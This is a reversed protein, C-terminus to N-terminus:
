LPLTFLHLIWSMGAINMGLYLPPDFLPGNTFHTMHSLVYISLIQFPLFTFQLSTFYIFSFFFRIEDARAKRDM